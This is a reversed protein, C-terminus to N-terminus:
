QAKFVTTHLHSLQHGMLLIGICGHWKAFWEPEDPVLMLVSTVVAQELSGTPQLPLEGLRSAIYGFGDFLEAQEDCMEMVEQLLHMFM